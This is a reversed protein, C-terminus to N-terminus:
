SCGYQAILPQYCGTQAFYGSNTSAATPPRLFPATGDGKRIPHNEHMKVSLDRLFCSPMPHQQWAECAGNPLTNDSGCKM